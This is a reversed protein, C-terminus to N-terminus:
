QLLGASALVFDDCVQNNEAVLGTADELRYYVRMLGSRSYWTLIRDTPGFAGGHWVLSIRWSPVAGSPLHLTEQAEVIAELKVTGEDRIFWRTGPHLPYSLRHLERPLPGGGRSGSPGLADRVLAIRAQMNRWAQVVATRRAPDAISQLRAEVADPADQTEPAGATARTSTNAIPSDCAPPVNIYTDAEFLGSADQRALVWSRFVQGDSATEVGRDVLYERDMWSQACVIQDTM